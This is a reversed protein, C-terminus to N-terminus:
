DMVDFLTEFTRYFIQDREAETLRLAMFRNLEEVHDWMPFDTGFMFHDAGFHHIMDVAAAKDLMFLSSSTDLYIRESELCRFAEEWRRYGGFHAAICVLDPVRDLLNRLRYPASYDYRDDGTHFLIPLGAEAIRRYMPMMAEDDIYFKQFDPHFKVGKLGLEQIHDIEEEYNELAQHMAAFGMFESYKECKEHIFNNISRVQKPTTAVSCVLYKSVGIRQGSEVLAHPYGIQRMGIDYFDGVSATAKEAIKGPYIHTHADYIKRQKTM